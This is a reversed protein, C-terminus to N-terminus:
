LCNARVAAAAEPGFSVIRNDDNECKGVYPNCALSARGFVAGSKVDVVIKKLGSFENSPLDVRLDVVAVDSADDRNFFQVTNASDNGVAVCRGVMTLSRPDGNTTWERKVDGSLRDVLLVKAAARNILVLTAGNDVSSVMYPWESTSKYVVRTAGNAPNIEVLSGAWSGLAENSVVYLKGDITVGSIPMRLRTPLYAPAAATAVLASGTYGEVKTATDIAWLPAEDSFSKAIPARVSFLTQAAAGLPADDNPNGGIDAFYFRDGIQGMYGTIWANPGIRTTTVRIVGNVLRAITFETERTKDNTGTIMVGNGLGDITTVSHSLPRRDLLSGDVRYAEVRYDLDFNTRSKGVWLADQAVAMAHFPEGRDLLTVTTQAMSVTSFMVTAASACLFASLMSRAM